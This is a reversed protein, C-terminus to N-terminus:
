VVSKRQCYGGHGTGARCAACCHTGGGISHNPHKVFDCGPRVCRAARAAVQAAVRKQSRGCVNQNKQPVVENSFLYKARGNQLVIIYGDKDVSLPKTLTNNHNFPGIKANPDAWAPLVWDSLSVEQQTSDPNLVSVNVVNAKVPDCVEAAYLSAGSLSNWWMNSNADAILEFVEHSIAGALTPVTNNVSNLISGGRELIQKVFVKIVGTGNTVDYFGVAPTLHTDLVLCKLPVASLVGKPVFVASVPMLNWDSCFTPLLLNLADVITAGDADTMLSSANVVAIQDYHTTVITGVNPM